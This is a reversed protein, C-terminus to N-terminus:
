SDAAQPEWVTRPELKNQVCDALYSNILRQYPIGKRKSLEKFYAVTQQELNITVQQKPRAYPNKVAKTFDYEKKM